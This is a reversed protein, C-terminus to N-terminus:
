KAAEQNLHQGLTVGPASISNHKRKCDPCTEFQPRMTQAEEASLGSQILLSIAYDISKRPAFPRHCVQCDTLQFVAEQFLDQKNFVALEFDESLRIAKTPCVEECRGCFICRGLFLLWKREGTTTDTSMTLANAPCAMTCAACAICQEAHYEPKGRFDPCVEYPKFPYKVTTDGVNLITKLLKFM